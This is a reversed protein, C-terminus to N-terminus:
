GSNDSKAKQLDSLNIFSGKVTYHGPRTDRHSQYGVKKDSEAMQPSKVIKVRKQFPEFMAPDGLNGSKSEPLQRAL